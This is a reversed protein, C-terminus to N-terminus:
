QRPRDTRSQFRRRNLLKTLPDHDALWILGNRAEERDKEMAEMRVSLTRVTEVMLDMEDRM